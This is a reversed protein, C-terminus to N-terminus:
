SGPPRHNVVPANNEIKKISATAYGRKSPLQFDKYTFCWNLCLLAIVLQAAKGAMRQLPLSLCESAATLLYKHVSFAAPLGQSM